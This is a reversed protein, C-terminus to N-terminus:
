TLQKIEPFHLEKNHYAKVVKFLSFFFNKKRGKITESTIAYSQCVIKVPYLSLSPFYTLEPNQQYHDPPHYNSGADLWVGLQQQLLKLIHSIKHKDKRLYVLITHVKTSHKYDDQRHLTHTCPPPLSSASKFQLYPVRSCEETKM